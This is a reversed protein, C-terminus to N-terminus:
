FSFDHYKEARGLWLGAGGKARWGKKTLRFTHIEGEPDSAYSYTQCESMGNKDTRTATMERVKITKGSPTVSIVEAPERDSYHTITCPMGVTPPPQKAREAIRNILSGQM